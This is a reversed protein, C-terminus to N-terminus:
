ALLQRPEMGFPVKADRRQGKCCSEEETPGVLEANGQLMMAGAKDQFVQIRRPVGASEMRSAINMADIRAFGM